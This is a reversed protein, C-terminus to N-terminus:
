TSRGPRSVVSPTGGASGDRGSKRKLDTPYFFLGLM